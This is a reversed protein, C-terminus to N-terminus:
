ILTTIQMGVLLKQFCRNGWRGQCHINGSKLKQWNSKHPRERMTVRARMEGLTASHRKVGMLVHTERCVHGAQKELPRHRQM